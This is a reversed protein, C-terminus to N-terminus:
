EFDQIDSIDLTERRQKIKTIKVKIASAPVIYEYDGVATLISHYNLNQRAQCVAAKVSNEDIHPFGEKTEVTMKLVVEYTTKM